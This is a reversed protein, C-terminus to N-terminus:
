SRSAFGTRFGLRNPISRPRQEIAAVPLNGIRRAWLEAPLGGRLEHTHSMSTFSQLTAGNPAAVTVPRIGRAAILARTVRVRVHRRGARRRCISRGGLGATTEVAMAHEWPSGM